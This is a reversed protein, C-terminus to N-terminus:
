QYLMEIFRERERERERERGSSPAVMRCDRALAVFGEESVQADELMQLAAEVAGGVCLLLLVCEITLSCM